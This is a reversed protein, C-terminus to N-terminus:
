PMNQAIVDIYEYYGGAKDTRESIFQEVKRINNNENRFQKLDCLFM